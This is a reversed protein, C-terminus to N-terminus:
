RGPAASGRAVLRGVLGLLVWVVASVGATLALAPWDPLVLEFFDRALPVALAAAVFLAMLVLLWLRWGRVPRELVAIVRLGAVSLVITTLTRVEELSAGLSSAGGYLALVAAVVVIGAPATFRVVRRVFGPLYRRKNPALALFFAPIGITAADILTLQRPLLPYSVGALAVVVALVTAWITKTVFLHAVREINATVRRGEAVVGPLTAFRGDLLILQAVAKTAATGSGMAIGLDAQKLALVDNVGDGTMAVTHGAGQLAVVMDRKQDPTVRGFAVSREMAAELAAGTPLTRADVAAAAAPVGAAAAVAGVTVPNDGSIVKVTVQQEAFYRLTEPADPRVREGLVVLGVPEISSPLVEGTLPGDTHALLLVRRGSGAIEAVRARVDDRPGDAADLLLEPAGLFWSGRGTFRAASWKRASSFAVSGDLTWAPPAPLAAGIAEATPNRAGSAAALAGLAELPDQAAAPSLPEFNQYAPQPETITGTKDVCLVDVRALGEVAPLEQVLVNRRALVLASVAFAVSTLLVLGQPVMAVLAAVTNTVGEALSADSRSFSWVLLLGVPVIAVAIVKLIENIGGQLDSHMRSFRRGEAAIKQAFADDGVATVRCLGEGATIFSGSLVRGGPSKDVPVSEGTLLSEDVELGDSELVEGDAVVQDGTRLRLVDDLVVETIGIELQRGDRLALAKPASLLSLRDLTLKARVEQFIGIAANLVLVIGFLADRWSGFWIMLVFLVGLILNFWTLVNARIISRIPRSTRSPVSNVRGSAVRERVEASSLGVVAGTM